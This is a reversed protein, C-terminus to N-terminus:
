KGFVKSMEKARLTDAIKFYRRATQYSRNGTIAMATTLSGGRELFNTVFTKKSSHFTACQWLPEITEFRTSGRYHVIQVKRKLKAAKMVEKLHENTESVNYHAMAYIGHKNKNRKLIKRSHPNLPIINPERVKIIQLLIKDEQINEPKLAIIDSHRMGTFCGLCYM